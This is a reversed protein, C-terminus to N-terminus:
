LMSFGSFDLKAFTFCRIEHQAQCGVVVVVTVNDAPHYKCDEVDAFPARGLFFHPQRGRDEFMRNLPCNNGVGFALDDRGVRSEGADGAVRFFVDDALRSFHQARGTEGAFCLFVHPVNQLRFADPLAFEAACAFGAFGKGDPERDIGELIFAVMDHAVDRDEAIDRVGLKRLLRDVALGRAVRQGAQGIAGQCQIPQALHQRGISPIHRHKGDQEHIEIMELQDVVRKTVRRAVLQQHGRCLADLACQPLGIRDAAHAAVLEDHQEAVQIGGFVNDRDGICNQGRNPLRQHDRPVGQLRPRADADSDIRHIPGGRFGQELVGVIRHVLCLLVAAVGEAEKGMVHLVLRVLSVPYVAFEASRHCGLM